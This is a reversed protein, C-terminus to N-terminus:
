SLPGRDVCAVCVCRPAYMRQRSFFVISDVDFFVIINFCVRCVAIIKKPFVVRFKSYSLYIYLFVCVYWCSLRTMFLVCSDCAVSSSTMTMTTTSTTKTATSSAIRAPLRACSGACSSARRSFRGSDNLSNFLVVFVFLFVCMDLTLISPQPPSPPHNLSHSSSVHM